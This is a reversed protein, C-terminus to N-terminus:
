RKSLAILVVIVAIVVCLLAIKFASWPAHGTVEGTQGNVLFQYPKDRYRYVSIWIPLLVHKFKEGSFRSVVHLDRQTDGPVDASCRERQSQEMRAVATRWGGNLDVSYEEARWGALYSPDYPKLALTDFPELKQTMPLPLGKSACVLVDDYDDNRSGWAPEWRVRQVQRQRTVMRGKDDRTTYTETVYYYYGAYATWDSHVNADFTWYPVYMGKMESVAALKKLDSPRLWLGGLWSSFKARAAKDDIRFPVVSEPQIPKQSDEQEVVHPSGCFDCGRSTENAGYSVVAGCQKCSVRRVAVGYGRKASAAFGHELDYEVITREVDGEGVARTAGCFACAMCGKTADYEMRAGCAHCLFEQARATAEAAEPQSDNM